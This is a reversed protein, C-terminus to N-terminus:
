GVFPLPTVEAPHRAGGSEVEVRTGPEQNGRRVYALGIATGLRPSVVSSTVRGIEKGDRFLPADKPVVGDPLKVGLLARNVQGRDRAMVIPEQGLYCGKTYCIAQEIRGVEPAFTTEDIDRGFAPTGTEIRLAEFAQRGAPKAGARLLMQWVTAARANLCVIDYGPVGLPSHRRIHSTADSGFTREMHQLEELPPVDDVLARELVHTANPGALHLQAFERTRDAFEVQESIVFHDLHKLVAESTGSPVDLWLARRGDHLRVHYVLLHAVVKAKNTTLFAECGGGLPLDNIDNTCLNHLFTAAEPGTLEVKGRHSQDFVVAGSRAHQYEAAPDGFHDPILWGADEVFAAGAAACQAHLPTQEPMARDGRISGDQNITERAAAFAFRYILVTSM